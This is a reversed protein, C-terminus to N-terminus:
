DLIVAAICDPGKYFTGTGQNTYFVGNVTDYLGIENDSIRYCPIFDRVLVNGDFFKLSYVRVNGLENVGETNNNHYIYHRGFVAISADVKSLSQPQLSISNGLPDTFIGNRYSITQRITGQMNCGTVYASISLGRYLKGASVHMALQLAYTNDNGNETVVTVAAFISQVPSASLGYPIFDIEFGTSDSPVIGIDIWQTGTSQIWEVQRYAAPLGAPCTEGSEIVSYDGSSIGAFTYGVANGAASLQAHHCTPFEGNQLELCVPTRYGDSNGNDQWIKRVSVNQTDISIELLTIKAQGNGSNTSSTLDDGSIMQYDTFTYSKGNNTYTSLGPYGSIYSTGGSGRAGWVATSTIWTSGAVGGYYGGGGGGAAHNSVISKDPTYVKGNGGKGFTGLNYLIGNNPNNSADTNYTGIVNYTYVGSISISATYYPTGGGTLKASVSELGGGYGQLYLRIGTYNNTTIAGGGGAAVMIRSQLSSLNDWGSGNSSGQIVRFDTAGGGGGGCDNNDGDQHGNGGGNWGGETIYNTSNNVTVGNTGKGGVYIFIM